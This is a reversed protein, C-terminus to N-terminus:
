RLFDVLSPVMIRAGASLSARYLTDMTSYNMFTEAFDIDELKSRLTTLNLKQAGNNNETLELGNSLAGHAARKDLVWDISQSLDAISQNIDATDARNLADKLENMRSFIQSDEHMFLSEGDINGQIIVNPAVEWRIAGEDGHYDVEGEGDRHFPVTTTQHGAFVNRGEYSTNAFQVLVNTLEDVEMALARRDEPSLSDNAGYVALERARQLVENIGHLADETTDIWSRATDINRKYQENNDLSTNYGLIRSVAIPDESPKNIAKGSSLMNQYHNMTSLNRNVNRIVTNKIIQHTVRM